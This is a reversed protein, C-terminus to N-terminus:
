GDVPEMNDAPDPTKPWYRDCPEGRAGFDMYSQRYESPKTGSDENRYCTTRSPCTESSCMSIDPM